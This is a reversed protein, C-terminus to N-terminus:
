DKLEFSYIDDGGSGGKRNSSFYGKKENNPLFMIGFDDGESNISEIMPIAIATRNEIDLYFIDLDGRESKKMFRGNSSFYLRGSPTLSPFIENKPTNVKPGLNIPPTWTSDNIKRIMYLDMGGFGGPMNSAFYLRKGDKSLAPHCYSYNDLEFPLMKDGIFNGATDRSKIYIKLTFKGEKNAKDIGGKSMNRTLFMSDGSATFCSPGEHTKSNTRYGFSKPKMLQGTSDFAAYKLNLDDPVKDEDEGKKVKRSNSCFLIGNEFFFPAFDDKSGNLVSVNEVTPGEVPKNSNVPFYATTTIEKKKSSVLANKKGKRNANKVKKEISGTNSTIVESNKPEPVGKSRVEIKDIISDNVVGKNQTAAGIETTESRKDDIDLRHQAEINSTVTLFPLAWILKRLKMKKLMENIM